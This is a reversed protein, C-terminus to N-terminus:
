VHHCYCNIWPYFLNRGIYRCCKRGSFFGAWISLKKDRSTQFLKHKQWKTFGYLAMFRIFTTFLVVFAINAGDEYAIKATPPYLGMIVATCLCLLTGFKQEKTQFLSFKM